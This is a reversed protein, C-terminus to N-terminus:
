VGENNRGCGATNPARALRTVKKAQAFFFDGLSGSPRRGLTDGENRKASVFDGFAEV